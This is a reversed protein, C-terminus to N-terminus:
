DVEGILDDISADEAEEDQEEERAGVDATAAAMLEYNRAATESYKQESEALAEELERIKANAGETVVTYASELEGRVAPLQELDELTDLAGLAEAFDM